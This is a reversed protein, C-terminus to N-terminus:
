SKSYKQSLLKLEKMPSVGRRRCSPNVTHNSFQLWILLIVVLELVIDTCCFAFTHQAKFARENSKRLQRDTELFYRRLAIWKSVDM